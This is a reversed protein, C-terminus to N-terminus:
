RSAMAIWSRIISSSGVVPVLSIAFTALPYAVSSVKFSLSRIFPGGFGTSASFTLTLDAGM